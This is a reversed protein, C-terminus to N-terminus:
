LNRKYCNKMTCIECTYPLKLVDKGIGVIGSVSKIPSMLSSESLSVGFNDLSFLSFIKKQEKLIWGCYGPSYPNTITFDLMEVEDAIEKMVYRVTAEAIESGVADALFENVIDGNERLQKLYHDYEGGATVIFVGFHSVNALYSTIIPGVKFTEIGIEIFSKSLVKGKLLTYIAKPKAIEAVKVYIEDIMEVIQPDPQVGGYGLNLYIENKDLKLDNWTLSCTM